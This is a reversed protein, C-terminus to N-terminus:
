SLALGIQDVYLANLAICASLRTQMKKDMMKLPTTSESSFMWVYIPFVSKIDCFLTVEFLYTHFIM